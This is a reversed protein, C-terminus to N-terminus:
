RSEVIEDHVFVTIFGSIKKIHRIPFNYYWERCLFSINFKVRVTECIIMLQIGDCKMLLVLSSYVQVM